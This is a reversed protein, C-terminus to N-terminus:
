QAPTLRVLSKQHDTFTASLQFVQTYGGTRDLYQPAIEEILKRAEDEKLFPRVKRYALQVDGESRKVLTILREFKSRFWKARTSFTTIQGYKILATSLDIWLRRREEETRHFKQSKKQHRMDRTESKHCRNNLSDRSINISLEFITVFSKKTL